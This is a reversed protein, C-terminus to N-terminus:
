RKKSRFILEANEDMRKIAVAINLLDQQYQSPATRKYTSIRYRKRQYAPSIVNDLPDDTSRGLCLNTIKRDLNRLIEEYQPIRIQQVM